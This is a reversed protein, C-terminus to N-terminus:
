FKFFEKSWKIKHKLDQVEMEYTKESDGYNEDLNEAKADVDVELLGSKELKEIEPLAKEKLEFLMDIAQGVTINQAELQKVKEMQEDTLEIEMKSM